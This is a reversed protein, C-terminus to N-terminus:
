VGFADASGDQAQHLFLRGHAQPRNDVGGANHQVGIEAAGLEAVLGDLGDAAHRLAPIAAEAELRADEANARATQRRLAVTRLAAQYLEQKTRM